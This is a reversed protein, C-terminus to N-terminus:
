GAIGRLPIQVVREVALRALVPGLYGVLCIHLRCPRELHPLRCAALGRRPGSVSGPTLALWVVSLWGGRRPVLSALPVPLRWM